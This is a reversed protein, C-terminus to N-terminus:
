LKSNQLLWTSKSSSARLSKDRLKNDDTAEYNLKVLKVECKINKHSNNYKHIQDTVFASM